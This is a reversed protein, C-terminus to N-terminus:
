RHIFEQCYAFIISEDYVNAEDIRVLNLNRLISIVYSNDNYVEIFLEKYKKKIIGKQNMRYVMAIGGEVSPSVRVPIVSFYRLIYSFISKCTDRVYQEILPYDYPATMESIQNIIRSMEPTTSINTSMKSFYRDTTHCTSFVERSINDKSLSFTNVHMFLQSSTYRLISKCIPTSNNTKYYPLALSSM